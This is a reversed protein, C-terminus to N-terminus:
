ISFKSIERLLINIDENNKQSIESTHTIATNINDVGSAIQNIANAVDGSLRELNKSEDVAEQSASQIGQSYSRVNRTIDNSASMAALVEKNGADQQEMSKKIELSQTSVTEFGKDISEFQKLSALTATSINELADKVNKLVSSVTKAQKSSSEALKRIEDAVVAFGRGVEGAHAAEIAANMALLNTQSAINQIVKNIELLHESEKSVNQIDASVMQLAANGETSAARLKQLDSENQALSTTISTINAIMEEIAASSRSVSEAQQEIQEDLNAINNIIHNMATNTRAVGEVQNASKAKMDQTNANIGSIVGVSDNMMSQMELGVSSLNRAKEDIALILTKIGEQTQGFTKMMQALEDRGNVTITQTLDGKALTAFVQSARKIPDIIWRSLVFIILFIIGIMVICITITVIQNSKQIADAAQYKESSPVLIALGIGSEHVNATLTYRTGDLVFNTNTYMQGPVLKRLEELWSNRPYPVIDYSTSGTRAFTANNVISFGAIEGSPTPLTFSSIMAQLTSLSVDVTAVGVIQEAPSYIPLCVSVMLVDISTDVYLESWHYRENRPRSRDWGKPLASLYWGEEYTDVDWEWEDGAWEVDRESPLQGGASLVKSVFCHFDYVDPYFAYPEFFGGGGLMAEERAFSSRYARLMSNELESRSLTDKLAYYSEGLTQSIGSGVQVSDLFSNFQNFSEGALSANYSESFGRAIAQMRFSNVVFIGFGIFSAVALVLILIFIKYRISGLGRSSTKGSYAPIEANKKESKRLGTEDSGKIIVVSKDPISKEPVSKDAVTKETIRENTKENAISKELIREDTNTKETNAPLSTESTKITVARPDYQGPPIPVAQKKESSNIKYAM